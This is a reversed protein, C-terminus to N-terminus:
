KQYRDDLFEINVRALIHNNKSFLLPRPQKGM